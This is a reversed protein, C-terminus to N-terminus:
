NQSIVIKTGTTELNAFITGPHLIQFKDFITKQKSVKAFNTGIQPFNYKLDKIKPNNCCQDKHIVIFGFHVRKIVSIWFWFRTWKKKDGLLALGVKYRRPGDDGLGM